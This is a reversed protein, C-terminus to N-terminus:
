ERKRNHCVFSNTTTGLFSNAHVNNTQSFFRNKSSCSDSELKNPRSVNGNANGSQKTGPQNYWSLLINRTKIESWTRSKSMRKRVEDSSTKNKKKKKYSPCLDNRVNSTMSKSIQIALVIWIDCQETQDPWNIVLHDRGHIEKFVHDGIKQREKLLFKM